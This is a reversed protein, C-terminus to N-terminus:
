SKKRSASRPPKGVAKALSTMAKALEDLRTAAGPSASYFHEIAGRRPETRKLELLGADRLIRVHYSILQVSGKLRDALKKPSIEETAARMISLRLPHALAALLAPDLEEPSLPM